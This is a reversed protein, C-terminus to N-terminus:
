ARCPALASGYLDVLRGCVSKLSFEEHAFRRGRCAMERRLDPDRGVTLMAEVLPEVECPTVLGAGARGIEPSIGVQTSVVVPLGAGMAEVVAVGFNESYSPLVYVDADALASLKAEGQLFGVWVVAKQLGLRDAQARLSGVLDPLGDGAIALVSDPFEAHVRAFATLLLDLGKKADIRSLYLYVTKNQLEPYRARFQGRPVRSTDPLEVPNPIIAASFKVNLDEAERQELQSTFQVAFARRLIRRECAYLSLRKFLPRRNKMGWRNLVGLPRVIYPKGKVVSAAAAVTSSWSFLAHIHVVDYDAVHQWIWRALPLSCTYFKTQRAFYRFTAGDQRVPQNLPAEIRMGFNDDTCVVDTEVGLGSLGQALTRMVISPGGHLPGISPIVHLVKLQFSGPAIPGSFTRGHIAVRVASQRVGVLSGM